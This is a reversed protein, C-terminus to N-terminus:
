WQDNGKYNRRIYDINNYDSYPDREYGPCVTNYARKECYEVRQWRHSPMFACSQLVTGLVAALLAFKM